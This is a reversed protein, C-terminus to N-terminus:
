YASKKYLYLKSLKTGFHKMFKLTIEILKVSENTALFMNWFFGKTVELM